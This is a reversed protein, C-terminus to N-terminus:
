TKKVFKISFIKAFSSPMKRAVSDYLRKIVKENDKSNQKVANVLRYINSCFDDGNEEFEKGKQITKEYNEEKEGLLEAVAQFGIYKCINRKDNKNEKIILEAFKQSIEASKDYKEESFLFDLYKDVCDYVCHYDCEKNSIIVHYYKDIGMFAVELIKEAEERYENEIFENSSKMLAKIGDDYSRNAAYAHFSNIMSNQADLPLKLQHLQIKFMKEHENGEEWYCSSNNLCKAIKERAAIEKEFQDSNHYADAAKKFFHIADLYSPAFRCNICSTQLYQMGMNYNEDAKDINTLNSSNETSM